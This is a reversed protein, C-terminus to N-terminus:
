AEVGKGLVKRILDIAAGSKVMDTTFRYVHWGQFSAQNYKELDAAYGAARNHRGNSWIGGEIEVAVLKDGPFAFDFRWKRGTCFQYERVPELGYAKCHLAFEEEGPSLRAPTATNKRITM